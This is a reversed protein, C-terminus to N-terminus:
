KKHKKKKSKKVPKKINFTNSKDKVFPKLASGTLEKSMYYFAIGKAISYAEIQNYCCTYLRCDEQPNTLFSAEVLVAPMTAYKLVAYNGQSIGNSSVRMNQNLQQSIWSSLNISEPMKNYFTMGYNINHNSSDNHHISIFLDAKNDKAIKPRILLENKADFSSQIRCNNKRTMIVKAGMSELYQKLYISVRLNVDSETQKTCVGYTGGTYANKNYIFNYPAQGGHGADVCIIINKLYQEQIMSQYSPTYGFLSGILILFNINM